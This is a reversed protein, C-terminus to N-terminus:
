VTSMVQQLQSSYTFLRQSAQALVNQLELFEASKTVAPGLASITRLMEKIQKLTNERETLKKLIEDRFQLVLQKNGQRSFFTLRFLDDDLDRQQFRQRISQTTANLIKFTHQMKVQSANSAGLMQGLVANPGQLLHSTQQQQQQQQQQLVAPTLLRGPGWQQQQQMLQQATPVSDVVSGVTAPTQTGQAGPMGAFAYYAQGEAQRVSSLYEEWASDKDMQSLEEFERHVLLSDHCHYSLLWEPQLKDLIGCM